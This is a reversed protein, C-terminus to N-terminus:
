ERNKKGRLYVSMSEHQLRKEPPKELTNRVRQSRTTNEVRTLGHTVITIKPFSKGEQGTFAHGSDRPCWFMAVTLRPSASTVWASVIDRPCIM